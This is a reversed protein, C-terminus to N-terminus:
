ANARYKKRIVIMNALLILCGQGNLEFFPEKLVARPFNQRDKREQGLLFIDMKCKIRGCFM